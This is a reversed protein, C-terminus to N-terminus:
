RTLAALAVPDLTVGLGPGDPIEAVGDRVVPRQVPLQDRLPNPRVDLEVVGVATSCAALQLTAAYAVAGGYLHPAVPRGRDEAARCIRLAATLGGAKSVDPQLADLADGDLAPGFDYLNEGAAVRLGSRERFAALEALDGGRIPEEVWVVRCERLVPALALAEALTWAQNADVMLEMDGAAERAARVNAEDRERGFGVRLKAATFGDARCRRVQEGVDPPGLGSAYVPVRDRRRGGLLEAASVGRAKGLLDWLAQDAGSIAQMVPGPAGWQRGLPELASVLRAHLGAVPAVPQGRLLPAVGQEITARREVGAWPPFSIWSEGVGVLGTTSEIEVLASSRATLRGFSAEIPQELPVSLIRVRVDAIVPDASRSM